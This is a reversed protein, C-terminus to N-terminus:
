SAPPSPRPCTRPLPRLSRGPAAALSWATPLQTLVWGARGLAPSWLEPEWEGGTRPAPPPPPSPLSPCHHGPTPVPCATARVMDTYIEIARMLCNIAEPSLFPAPPHARLQKPPLCPNPAPAAQLPVSPAALAGQPPAPLSPGPIGSGPVGEPESVASRESPVWKPPCGPQRLQGAGRAAAAGGGDRCGQPLIRRHWTRSGPAVDGM